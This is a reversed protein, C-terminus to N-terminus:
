HKYGTRIRNLGMECGTVVFIIGDIRDDRFM